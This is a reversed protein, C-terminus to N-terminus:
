LRNFLLQKSKRVKNQYQLKDEHSRYGVAAIVATTLGKEKLELIEDFEKADFGEMPCSDIQFAAAASLFNGLALYAQKAAWNNLEEPSYQGVSNMLKKRLSEFEVPAKDRGEAMIDIFEDIYSEDIQTINAFVLLHSADTVQSQDYAASRLTKRLEENRIVFIQYPQLGYSSASLKIAELLPELDKESIVKDTFKKTAYRWNLNEIYSTM